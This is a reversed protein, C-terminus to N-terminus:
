RISEQYASGADSSATDSKITGAINGTTKIWANKVDRLKDNFALLGSCLNKCFDKVNEVYASVANEVERDESKFASSADALPDIADLHSQIGEVWLSIKECINDVEAVNIGVVSFGGLGFFGGSSTTSTTAGSRSSDRNSSTSNIAEQANFSSTVKESEWSAM